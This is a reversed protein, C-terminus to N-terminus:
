DFHMKSNDLFKNGVCIFFELGQSDTKGYRMFHKFSPASNTTKSHGPFGFYSPFPNSSNQSQQRIYLTGLAIRHLDPIDQFISLNLQFFLRQGQIPFMKSFRVNWAPSRPFNDMYGHCFFPKTYFIFQHNKHLWVATKIWTSKKQIRHLFM